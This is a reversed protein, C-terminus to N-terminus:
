SGSVIRIDQRILHCTGDAEYCAQGTLTVEVPSGDAPLKVKQRLEARESFYGYEANWASDKKDKRHAGVSRLANTLQPVLCCDALGPRDGFCFAASAPELQAELAALGQEVWHRYWAQRAPEAAGLEQELYKLVRLNNLPHIDCAVGLAFGRVRARAAPQAPLLAPEPYTEELYEIIALSQNFVGHEDRWVPVLGAPNLARFSEAHQEGGGRVLHVPLTDYALGKLGLAIRVRFCASSRHYDYLTGM